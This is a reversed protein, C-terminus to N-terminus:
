PLPHHHIQGPYSSAPGVSIAPAPPSYRHDNRPYRSQSTAATPRDERPLSCLYTLRPLIIFCYEANYVGRSNRTFLLGCFKVM